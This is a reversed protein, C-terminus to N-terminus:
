PRSRRRSASRIRVARAAAASDRRDAGAPQVDDIQVARAVAREGVAADGHAQGRLRRDLDLDAAAHARRATMSSRSRLPTARTTMPLRATSRGARPADAPQVLEAGSRMQRAKSMRLSASPRAAPACGRSSGPRVASDTPPARATVQRMAQLCTSHVSMSRSPASDPGSGPATDRPAALAMRLNGPLGRAADAVGGIQRREGCQAQRGGDAALGQEFLAHGGLLQSGNKGFAYNGAEVHAVALDDLAHAEAIVLDHAVDELEGRAIAVFARVLQHEIVDGGAGLAARHVAGPHVLTARTSSMGKQTAPPMRETASASATSLAPASFIEILEGARASGSRILAKLARKPECHTTTPMSLWVTLRRSCADVLEGAIRVARAIRAAVREGPHAFHLLAAGALDHEVAHGAVAHAAAVVDRLQARHALDAAHRQNGRAAGARRLM